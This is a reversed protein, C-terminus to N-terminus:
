YDDPSKFSNLKCIERVARKTTYLTLRKLFKEVVNGFIFEKKISKRREVYELPLRM